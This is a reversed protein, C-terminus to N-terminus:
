EQELQAKEARYSKYFNCFMNASCYDLCRRPEGKRKEIRLQNRIIQEREVQREMSNMDAYGKKKSLIDEAIKGQETCADAYSFCVKTATKNTGKYVAHTDHDQWREEATCPPIRDDEVNKFSELLAVRSELFSEAVDTGWLPLEITEIQNPYTPDFKAKSPQWDRFMMTIKLHNIEFGAKEAMLRYLNLQSEWEKSRSGPRNRYIYTYVSTLKYDSITKGVLDILDVGGTVKLGSKTIWSFRRETLYRDKGLIQCLAAFSFPEEAFMIGLFMEKLKEIKTQPQSQALQTFESLRTHLKHTADGDNARELIHHMASGMLMFVREGADQELDDEHRNNLHHIKAPSLLGTVSYDRKEGDGSYWSQCVANFLPEDFGKQNTIKIGM